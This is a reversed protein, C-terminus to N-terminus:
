TVAAWVHTVLQSTFLFSGLGLVSWCVTPSSLWGMSFPTDAHGFQKRCAARSVINLYPPFVLAIVLALCGASVHLRVVARVCIVSGCAHHMAIHHSRM